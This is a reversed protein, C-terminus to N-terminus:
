GKQAISKYIKVRKGVFAVDTIGKKAYIDVFKALIEEESKGAALLEQMLAINSGKKQDKSKPKTSKTAKTKTKKEPKPDPVADGESPSAADRLSNYLEIITTPIQGEDEEPISEVASMFLEVLAPGEVGDYDIAAALLDTSNLRELAEQIPNEASSSKSGKKVRKVKAM